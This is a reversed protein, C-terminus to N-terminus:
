SEDRKLAELQIMSFNPPCWKRSARAAQQAAQQAPTLTPEFYEAGVIGLTLGISVALALVAGM